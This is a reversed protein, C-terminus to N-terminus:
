PPPTRSTGAVLTRDDPGRPPTAPGAVLLALVPTAAAVFWAVQVLPNGYALSIAVAVVVVAGALAAGVSLWGLRTARPRARVWWIGVTAWGVMSLLMLLSARSVIPNMPLLPVDGGGAVVGPAGGVGYRVAAYTGLGLVTLTVIAVGVVSRRLPVTHDTRRRAWWVLAAWGLGLGVISSRTGDEAGDVMVALDDHVLSARASVTVPGDGLNEILLTHPTWVVDCCRVLENFSVHTGAGLVAVETGPGSAVLRVHVPGDSTIRGVVRHYHLQGAFSATGGPELVLMEDVLLVDGHAAAPVAVVVLHLVAVLGIMALRGV